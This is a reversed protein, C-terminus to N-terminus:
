ECKTAAELTTAGMVCQRAADTWNEKECQDIAQQEQQPLQVKLQEIVADIDEQKAGKYQEDLQAVYLQLVQDVAEKCSIAHDAAATEEPTPAAPEEIGVNAEAQDSMYPQLLREWSKKIKAFEEPCRAARGEPLSGSSVFDKYKETDSGYIWCLINYFRQMDLAHEDSFPTQDGGQQQQLQFWYAGALAMKVSEDGGAVLIYTSFQDVADEERGTSPLDLQHILCHGTEHFFAFIMAGLIANGLEDTDKAVPKFVDALYTMFENCMIIRNSNPDYFANVVGCDTLQIDVQNPMSITSNLAIAVKEYVQNEKLIDEFQQHTANNSPSYSVTFGTPAKGSFGRVQMAPKEPKAITAPDGHVKPDIKVPAASTEIKAFGATNDVVDNAGKPADDTATKDDVKAAKDGDKAPEKDKDGDKVKSSASDDDKKAAEKKSGCGLALSASCVLVAAWAGRASVTRIM